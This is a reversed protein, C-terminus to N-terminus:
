FSGGGAIVDQESRGTVDPVFSCYGLLRGVPLVGCYGDGAAYSSRSVRRPKAQPSENALRHVKRWTIRALKLLAYSSTNPIPMQITFFYDVDGFRNCQGGAARTDNPDPEAADGGDVRAIEARPLVAIVSSSNHTSRSGHRASRLVHCGIRCSSYKDVLTGKHLQKLWAAIMSPPSNCKVHQRLEKMDDASLLSPESSGVMCGDLPECGVIFQDDAFPYPSTRRFPRGVPMPDSDEVTFKTGCPLLNIRNNASARKSLVNLLRNTLPDSTTGILDARTNEDTCVERM